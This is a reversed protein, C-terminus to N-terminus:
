FFSTQTNTQEYTRQANQCWVPLYLRAERFIRKREYSPRSSSKSRYIQGRHCKTIEHNSRQM